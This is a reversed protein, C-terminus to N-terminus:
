CWSGARCFAVKLNILFYGPQSRDGLVIVDEPMHLFFRCVSGHM